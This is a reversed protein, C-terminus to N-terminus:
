HAGPIKTRGLIWAIVVAVPFSVTTYLVYVLFTNGVAESIVTDRFANRWNELSYQPPDSALEAVNFSNLFILLIPYIIYFGLGGLILAM